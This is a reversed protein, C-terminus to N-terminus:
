TTEENSKQAKLNRAGSTPVSRGVLGHQLCARYVRVFEQHKGPAAARYTREVELKWIATTAVIVRSTAAKNIFADTALRAVHLSFTADDVPALTRHHVGNNTTFANLLLEAEVIATGKRTVVLHGADKPITENDTAVFPM